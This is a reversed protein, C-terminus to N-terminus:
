LFMGTSAADLDLRVLMVKAGCGVWGSVVYLNEFIHLCILFDFRDFVWCVFLNICNLHGSVLVVTLCLIFLISSFLKFCVCVFIIAFVLVLLQGSRLRVYIFVTDAVSGGFFECM